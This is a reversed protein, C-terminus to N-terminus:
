SMIAALSASQGARVRGAGDAGGGGAVAAVPVGIVGDDILKRATQIGGGLFTDPACGVRLGKKKALAIVKEGEKLNLAFPKETYAHKGAKLIRENLPAHVKPVTLNIVLEIEPDALLEDVSYAKVYYRDAKEKARAMDIDAVAVTQLIPFRRSGELYAKSINGCGIIGIKFTRNM